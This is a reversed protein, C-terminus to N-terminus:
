GLVECPTPNQVTVSGKEKLIWNCATKISLVVVQYVTFHKEPDAVGFFVPFSLAEAGKYM